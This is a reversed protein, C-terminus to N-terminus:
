NTQLPLFIIDSFRGILVLGSPDNIERGAFIELTYDRMPINNAIFETRIDLPTKVVGAGATLKVKRHMTSQTPDNADIKVLKGNPDIGQLVIQLSVSEDALAIFDLTNIEDILRPQITIPQEQILSFIPFATAEDCNFWQYDAPNSSPIFVFPTSDIFPLPIGTDIDQRIEAFVTVRLDCVSEGVFVTPKLGEAILFGKAGETVDTVFQGAFIILIISSVMIIAVFALLAGLVM